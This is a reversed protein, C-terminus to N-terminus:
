IPRPQAARLLRDLTRQQAEQQQEIRRQSGLVATLASLIETIQSPAEGPPPAALDHLLNLAEGARQHTEEITEGLQRLM